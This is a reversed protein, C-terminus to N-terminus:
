KFTSIIRLTQTFGYGVFLVVFGIPWLYGVNLVQMDNWRLTESYQKTIVAHKVHGVEVNFVTM